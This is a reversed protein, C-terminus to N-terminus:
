LWPRRLREVANCGIEADEVGVEHLRRTQEELVERLSTDASPNVSLKGDTAFAGEDQFTPVFGCRLEHLQKTAPTNSPAFVPSLVKFHADRLGSARSAAARKPRPPAPILSNGFVPNHIM